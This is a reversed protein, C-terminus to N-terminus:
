GARLARYAAMLERAEAGDFSGYHGPHVVKIPLQALREHSRLLDPIHSGDLEDLLHGDYLVDSSFLVGTAAEWLSISGPSHGPTHLVEFQRDGLDIVDGDHLLRTAPAPRIHYDAVSTWGDPVYDFIPHVFLTDDKSSSLCHGSRPSSLGSTLTDDTTTGDACNDTTQCATRPGEFLDLTALYPMILTNAQTPAALVHAELPHVWREAFEWAAGIHDFHTHTAVFITRESDVLPLNPRLPVLGYGGDILLDRDRGRVFYMLGRESINIYTEDIRWIAHELETTDFM